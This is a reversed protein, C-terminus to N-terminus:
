EKSEEHFRDALWAVVRAAARAPLDDLMRLMASMTKIEADMRRGTGAEEAEASTEVPRPEEPAKAPRPSGRAPFLAPSPQHVTEGVSM